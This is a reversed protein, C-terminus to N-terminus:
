TFISAIFELFRQAYKEPTCCSVGDGFVSNKFIMELHKKYGFKTFVDIIGFSYWYRGCQSRVWGENGKEASEKIGLVLSYDTIGNRQLFEVDLRVQELIKGKVEDGVQVKVGSEIFDLDKLPNMKKAKATNKRGVTSGKLDFVMDFDDFGDLVDKMMLVHFKAKNWAKFRKVTFIGNIRILYTQPYNLVYESYSPIFTQSLELESQQLTKFLYKNSKSSLFHSESKGSSSTWPNISFDNSISFKIPDLLSIDAQISSISEPTLSKNLHEPFHSIIQYITLIKEERSLLRIHKQSCSPSKLFHSLGSLFHWSLELNPISESPEDEDISAKAPLFTEDTPQFSSFLSLYYAPDSDPNSSTIQTKFENWTLNTTPQNSTEDKTFLSPSVKFFEKEECEITECKIAYNIVELYRNVTDAKMIGNKIADFLIFKNWQVYFGGDLYVKFFSDYDLKGQGDAFGDFLERVDGDNVTKRSGTLKRFLRQIAKANKGCSSCVIFEQGDAIFQFLIRCKLDEVDGIAIGVFELYSEVSIGSNDRALVKFLNRVLSGVYPFGIDAACSLFRSLSIKDEKSYKRFVQEFREM